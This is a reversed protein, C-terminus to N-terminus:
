HLLNSIKSKWIKYGDGNLHVGDYTFECKLTGNTSLEDNLNVFVINNINAYENLEVNLKKVANNIENNTMKQGTTNCSSSVYLTSQIIPTIKSSQLITIIQIYDKVVTAIPRHKIIDNIGLMIFATDPQTNIISDLRKLVGYTTDSGIGRNLISTEPFIEHWEGEETISDGIMVNKTTSHFSSFLSTRAKWTPYETLMDDPNLSKVTILSKIFILQRFPFFHYQTSLVGYSFSLFSIVLFALFTRNRHNRSIM